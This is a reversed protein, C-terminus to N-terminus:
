RTKSKVVTAYNGGPFKSTYRKYFQAAAVKGLYNEATLALYFTPTDLTEIKDEQSRLYAYALQKSDKLSMKNFLTYLVCFNFTNQSIDGYIRLEDRSLEKYYSLSYLARALSSILFENEPFQKLLRAGYIIANVPDQERLSNHCLEFVSILQHDEFKSLPQRIQAAPLNRQLERISGIRKDLDPHTEYLDDVQSDPKDQISYTLARRIKELQMDSLLVTDLKYFENSLLAAYDLIQENSNFRMKNLAGTAADPDFGGANMMSLAYSDAEQESERSLRLQRFKDYLSGASKTEFKQIANLKVFDRVNHQLDYHALEHALIFALESETDLVNFLGINVFVSGDALCFANPSGYRTLYVKIEPAAGSAGERLRKIIQGLYDSLPNPLYVDGSEFLQKKFANVQIFFPLAAKKPLLTNSKAASEAAKEIDIVYEDPLAGSSILPQYNKRVARRCVFNGDRLDRYSRNNKYGSHAATKKEDCNM